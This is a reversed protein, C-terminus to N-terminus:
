EGTIEEAIQKLDDGTFLRQERNIASIMRETM